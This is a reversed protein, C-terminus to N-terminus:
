EKVVSTDVVLPGGVLWKDFPKLWEAEDIAKRCGQWNSYDDVQIIAGLRINDQLYSLVAKVSEYWDCDIHVLDFSRKEALKDLSEEYRGSIFEIKEISCISSLEEKVVTQLNPINGYYDETEENLIARYREKAREGDIDTPSPIRDFIDYLALTGGYCDVLWGLIAASGGRGVGFEAVRVLDQHRSRVLLFSEALSLLHQYGLYTKQTRKLNWSLLALHPNILALKTLYVYKSIM